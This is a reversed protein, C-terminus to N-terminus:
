ATFSFHSFINVHGVDSKNVVFLPVNPKFWIGEKTVQGVNELLSSNPNKPKSTTKKAYFCKFVTKVFLYRTDSVARLTDQCSVLAVDSLVASGRSHREKEWSFGGATLHVLQQPSEVARM